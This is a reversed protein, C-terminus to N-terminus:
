ILHRPDQRPRFLPTHTVRGNRNLKQEAQYAEDKKLAVVATILQPPIRGSYYLDSVSRSEQIEERRLKDIMYESQYKAHYFDRELQDPDPCLIEDKSYVYQRSEKKAALYLPDHVAYLLWDDPHYEIDVKSFSFKCVRLPQDPHKPDFENFTDQLVMSDLQGNPEIYIHWHDSLEDAEAHHYIAYYNAIVHSRYLDDLHRELFERTNYGITSIPKKTKM